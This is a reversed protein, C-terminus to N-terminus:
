RDGLSKWRKKSKFFNRPPLNKLLSPAPSSFLRWCLKEAFNRLGHFTPVNPPSAPTSFEHNRPLAHVLNLFSYSTLFGLTHVNLLQNPKKKLTSLERSFFPLSVKFDVSTCVFPFLQCEIGRCAKLTFIFHFNALFESELLLFLNEWSSTFYMCFCSFFMDHSQHRSTVQIVDGSIVNKASYYKRRFDLHCCFCLLHPM